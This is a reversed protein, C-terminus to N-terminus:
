PQHLQLSTLRRRAGVAGEAQRLVVDGVEGVQAAGGGEGSNSPLPLLLANSQRLLTEGGARGGVGSGEQTRLRRGKVLYM